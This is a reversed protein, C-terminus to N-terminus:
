CRVRRSCFTTASNWHKLAEAHELFSMHVAELERDIEVDYLQSLQTTQRVIM